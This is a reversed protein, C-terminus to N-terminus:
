AAETPTSLSNLLRSISRRIDGEFATLCGSARRQDDAINDIYTRLTALSDLHQNVEETLSRVEDVSLIPREHRRAELISRAFGYASQLAVAHDEGREFVVAWTNSTCDLRRFRQGGMLPNDPSSVVVIGAQAGRNKMAQELESRAARLTPRHTNKVELVIRLGDQITCTVDGRKSGHTRSRRTGQVAGTHEWEDGHVAAMHAVAQVVQQEYDLGGAPTFLRAADLAQRTALATVVDQLGKEIRGFANGIASSPDLDKMERITRRIAESQGDTIRRYEETLDKRGATFAEEFQRRASQIREVLSGDAEPNAQAMLAEALSTKLGAAGELLAQTLPGDVGVAQTFHSELTNLASAVGAVAREMEQRLGDAVMGNTAACAARAGIEVVRELGESPNGFSRIAQVAILDDMAVHIVDGELTGDLVLAYNRTESLSEMLKM